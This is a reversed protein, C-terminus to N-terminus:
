SCVLCVCRHLTHCACKVVQGFNTDAYAAKLNSAGDSTVSYVDASQLGLSTLVMEFQNAMWVGTHSDYRGDVLGAILSRKVSGQYGCLMMALINYKKYSWVDIVLHIPSNDKKLQKAFDKVNKEGVHVLEQLVSCSCLVWCVLM